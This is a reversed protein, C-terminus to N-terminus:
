RRGRITDPLPRVKRAHLTGWLADLWRYLGGPCSGMDLEDDARVYADEYHSAPGFRCDQDYVDGTTPDYRVSLVGPPPAWSLSDEGIQERVREMWRGWVPGALVGGSGHPVITRPRDFGIWVGAAMDPTLGIFWADRVADTTGTKGAAPGDYGTARVPRATGRDVVGRLADLVVFSTAASIVRMRQIPPQYRWLITGDPAAISDLVHTEVRLGGDDFAAFATTMDLLSADFSGLFSSPVDRIPTDIGMERSISRMPGVGVSLGLHVAARNSSHILAERMPMITDKVHDRPSWVGNQVPVSITDSSVLDLIGRGHELAAAVLFPKALSGVQRKAESVRDFQSRQFNRGGIWARVAGTWPDIAVAAGELPETSDPHPIAGYYGAEIDELQRRLARRGARQIKPDITTFVRLGPRGALDPVATRLARRVEATAYSRHDDRSPAPITTVKEAKAADAAQASVLGAQALVDLVVNRRRRARNPYRRPDYRGPTRTMGVLTALQALDLSDASVGFYYRAAADVGYLGNGLYISNLYLDLVRRHGLRRILIPAEHIEIIKRHWADVGKLSAGWLTRVLQMPITSAGEVVRGSELDRAAARVIGRLDVGGHSWFRRDEVAVWAGSLRSSIRSPPLSRRLPGDVNALPHGYRDYIHIAEPLRGGKELSRLTVCPTDPVCSVSLWRTVLTLLTLFTVGFTLCLLARGRPDRPIRAALLRFARQLIPRM